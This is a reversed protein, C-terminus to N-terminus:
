SKLKIEYMFLILRKLNSKKSVFPYLVTIYLFENM